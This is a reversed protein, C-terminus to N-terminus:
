IKGSSGCNDVKSGLIGGVNRARKCGRSGDKVVLELKRKGCRVESSDGFIRLKKGRVWGHRQKDGMGWRSIKVSGSSYVQNDTTPNVIHINGSPGDIKFGSVPGSRLCPDIYDLKARNSIDHAECVYSIIPRNTEHSIPHFGIDKECFGINGLGDNNENEVQMEGNIDNIDWGEAGMSKLNNVEEEQQYSSCVMHFSESKQSKVDERDIIDDIQVGVKLVKSIDERVSAVLIEKGKGRDIKWSPGNIVLSLVFGKQAQYNSKPQTKSAKLWPGFPHEEKGKVM